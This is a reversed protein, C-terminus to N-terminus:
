SRQGPQHDAALARPRDSCWWSRWASPLTTSAIPFAQRSSVLSGTSVERTEDGVTVAGRGAVAYYLEDETHPSQPDTADAELVYLGASLNPVRVFERYRQGGAARAADIEALDWAQM